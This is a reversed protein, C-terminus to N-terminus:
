TCLMVNENRLPRLKVVFKQWTTNVGRNSTTILGEFEIDLSLLGHQSVAFYTYADTGAM